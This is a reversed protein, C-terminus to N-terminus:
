KIKALDSLTESIRTNIWMKSCVFLFRRDEQIINIIGLSSPKRALIQFQDEIYFPSPAMSSLLLGSM